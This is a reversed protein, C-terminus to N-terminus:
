QIAALTKRDRDECRVRANEADRRALVVLLHRGTDTQSFVKYLGENMRDEPNTELQFFDRFSQLQIELFDPYDAKVKSSAFNIRENNAAM